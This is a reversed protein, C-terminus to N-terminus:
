AKGELIADIAERFAHAVLANRWILADGQPERLEALITRVASEWFARNNHELDHDDRGCAIPDSVKAVIADLTSM